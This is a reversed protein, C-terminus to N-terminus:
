GAGLIPWQFTKPQQTRDGNDKSKLAADDDYSLEHVEQRSHVEADDAYRAPKSEQRRARAQAREVRALTEEDRAKQHRREALLKQIESHRFMAVQEDTLTRPVGDEYYELDGQGVPENTPSPKLDPVPQGPFHQEHFKKLRVIDASTINAGAVSM